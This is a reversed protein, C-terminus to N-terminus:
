ADVGSAKGYPFINCDFRPLAQPRNLVDEQEIDAPRVDFSFLSGLERLIAETDRTFTHSGGYPYCFTRPRSPGAANELFEFSRQIEERQSQASLRAMIPHSVSHSGILMGSDRLTKLQTEHMYVQSFLTESDDFLEIMLKDLVPSRFEYSIFYNMMRKFLTSFEADTQRPYTLLRYAEVGEHTLMDETVHKKLVGLMHSGGFKGLLLHIRHVDLIRKTEFPGSPIYFIGWLGRSLLEPLVFEFHDLLGDDFTLVISNRPVPAGNFCSLFEQQTIFTYQKGFWDLQKKFHDLSLYRFYPFDPAAPRVYHYMIAKM